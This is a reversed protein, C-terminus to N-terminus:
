KGRLYYYKEMQRLQFKQTTAGKVYKTVGFLPTGLTFEDTVIFLHDVLEQWRQAGHVMGQRYADGTDGLVDAPETVDLLTVQLQCQRLLNVQEIM